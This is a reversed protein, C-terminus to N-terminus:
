QKLMSNDYASLKLKLQRMVEHAEARNLVLSDAIRGMRACDDSALAAQLNDHEGIDYAYHRGVLFYQNFKPADLDLVYTTPLKSLSYAEDMAAELIKTDIDKGFEPFSGDAQTFLWQGDKSFTVKVVTPHYQRVHNIANMVKVPIEM